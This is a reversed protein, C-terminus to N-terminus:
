NTSLYYQNWVRGWNKVEITYTQTRQPVWQVFCEDSWHEDFAVLYGNQDYIYLDLDTDGDGSVYVQALQGAHFTLYYYNSAYANVIEIDWKPGGVAGRTRSRLAGEVQTAWALMTSDRAALQRADAILNEPTIELSDNKVESVSGDEIVPNANLPQTSIQVLIEAAGILAAASQNDYGYKALQRAIQIAELDSNSTGEPKHDGVQAFLAVCLCLMLVLAFKKKM